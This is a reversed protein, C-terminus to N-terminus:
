KFRILYKTYKVDDYAFPLEEEVAVKKKAGEPKVMKTIVVVFGSEDSSKLIGSLKQGNKTLVEVENGINKQYQRPIKFPSTIGASGVELEFDEVDRDLESEVARSLAICDDIGVGQDSDIEIVIINGPRVSVDVLFMNTDEIFKETIDKILDKEIMERIFLFSSAVAEEGGIKNKLQL